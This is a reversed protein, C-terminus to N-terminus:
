ILQQQRQDSTGKNAVAGVVGCKCLIKNKRRKNGLCKAVDRVDFADRSLELQHLESEIRGIFICKAVHNGFNGIKRSANVILKCEGFDSYKLSQGSCRWECYMMAAFKAFFHIFREYDIARAVHEGWTAVCVCKSIKKKRQKYKNNKNNVNVGM